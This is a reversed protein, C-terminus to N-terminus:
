LTRKLLSIFIREETKADAKPHAFPLQPGTPRLTLPTSPYTLLPDSTPRAREQAKGPDKETDASKRSKSKSSKKAKSDEVSAENSLAVFGDADNSANADKPKKSKKSKKADDKDSKSSKKSPDKSKHKSKKKEVGDHSVKNHLVDNADKSVDNEGDEM